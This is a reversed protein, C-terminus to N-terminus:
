EKVYTQIIKEYRGSSRLEKLGRNFVDRIKKKRFAIRFVSPDFLKHFTVNQKTPIKKLRAQLYKFIRRDLVIVDTRKLLFMGIQHKQDAIEKYGPNKEAMLEFEKGFAFKAQQFGIIKKDKLDAISDIKLNQSTLSVAFNHYTIYEDSIFSGHVQPYHKKITLVGDVLKQKFSIKTRELPQHIFQVKYDELAFAERVIDVEFGSDKDDPNKAEIVYPAVSLGVSLKVQSSFVRSPTLCFILMVGTVLGLFFIKARGAGADSTLNDVRM